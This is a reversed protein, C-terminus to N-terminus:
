TMAEGIRVLFDDLGMGEDGHAVTVEQVAHLQGVSTKCDLLATSVEGACTACSM